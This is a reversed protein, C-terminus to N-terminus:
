ERFECLAPRIAAPDATELNSFEFEGNARSSTITPIGEFM